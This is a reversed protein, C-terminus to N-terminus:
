WTVKIIKDIKKSLEEYNKKLYDSLKDLYYYDVISDYELISSELVNLLCLFCSNLDLNICKIFSNFDKTTAVLNTLRSIRKNM